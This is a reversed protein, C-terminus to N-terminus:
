KTNSTNLSITPIKNIVLLKEVDEKRLKGTENRPLTEVLYIPRPLFVPALKTRLSALISEATQGPAVVFAVLRTVSEEKEEPMFFVGDIVGYISLLQANLADLSARHGGINILHSPRGALTFQQPNTSLITDPIPVPGSFYPASVAHGDGLSVVTLDPLLTWSDEQNPRRTAITGAEAFGYIEVITTHFLEEVQKALPQSLPATASLTYAVEPFKSQAMVCARLHIPTSVLIHQSPQERLVSAIDEPFFPRGSHIAWGRQLPLMISTELGYMHQHPVTAVITVPRTPSLALSEGTKQAIQVMSGWSKLYPRPAGTTGSTFAIAAIHSDPFQPNEMSDQDPMTDLDLSLGELGPVQDQEDTLYYCDSYERTLQQLIEPSQNPPLLTTQNRCLAAAFGVMFAYRDQCMNVVYRKSPLQNRTVKVHSLLRHPSM